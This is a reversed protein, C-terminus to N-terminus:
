RHSLLPLTVHVLPGILLAFVVTGIGATGGLAIGAALVTLEISTRVVRISHGRAALGVMLGDRPGPGLGAGVYAGTAVANLGIGVVLCIWRTALTQPQPFIALAADLVVGILVVNCVTGIGPRQHLPIWFLLVVAGVLISWTGIAMGTRRALGQHLVDWPDLGLRSRVLFALSVGFLTLGLFLQIYRAVPQPSFFPPRRTPQM